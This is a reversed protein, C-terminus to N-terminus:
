VTQALLVIGPGVNYEDSPCLSHRDRLLWAIGARPRITCIDELWSAIHNAMDRQKGIPYYPAIFLVALKEKKSCPLQNVAIVARELNKKIAEVPAHGTARSWMHKAEINFEYHEKRYLYLDCRGKSPPDVNPRTKDTRWEELAVGKDRWAAAALFGILAREHYRSAHDGSEMATAYDRQAKLWGRLLRHLGPCEPADFHEDKLYPNM